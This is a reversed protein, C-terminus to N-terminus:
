DSWDFTETLTKIHHTGICIADAADQPPIVKYNKAVYELANQKQQDRNNGKINLNAKWTTSFYCSNEIKLEYLLQQLVGM